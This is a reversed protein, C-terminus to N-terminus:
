SDQVLLGGRAGDGSVFAFLRPAAGLVLHFPVWNPDLQLLLQWPGGDPWQDGQVFVPAGGIKDGDFRELDRGHGEDVPCLDLAYEVASGDPAYLGPGTALPRLRGAYEGGPQVIVANEGGAPDIIDPDFFDEGHDAHTVFVYAVKGRGASGLVADLEIQAVFRMPRDWAASVPWQPDTVWVPQGGFKTTPTVVPRDVPTFAEIRLSRVM